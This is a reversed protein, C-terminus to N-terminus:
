MEILDMYKFIAKNSLSPYDKAKQEALNNIVEIIPKGLVYFEEQSNDIVEIIDKNFLIAIIETLEDVDNKKDPINIMNMITTLIDRLINIIDNKHIFGNIALNIYFATIARRKENKKNMECFGDYNKDSDIYEIDNYQEMICAYKENFITKLWEYMTALEAFVDAFIKSYFKNSSAVDYLMQGLKNINEADPTQECIANIKDIIKERLDLYTKDTLKNLYLRVLDIEKDIGTKQEIKTTQFTRISEWEESSLETVRNGKKKKNNKNIGFNIESNNNTNMNINITQSTFVDSSIGSSGVQACLYNIIDCTNDPIKFQFETQAIENFQKLNYKMMTTM